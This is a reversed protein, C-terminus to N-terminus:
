INRFIMGKDNNLHWFFYGVLRDLSGLVVFARVAIECVNSLNHILCGPATQRPRAGHGDLHGGEHPHPGGHVVLEFVSAAEEGGNACEPCLSPDDPEVPAHDGGEDDPGDGAESVGGHVHEGGGEGLVVLSELAHGDEDM